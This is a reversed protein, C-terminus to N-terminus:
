EASSVNDKNVTKSKGKGKGNTKEPSLSKKGKAPKSEKVPQSEVQM